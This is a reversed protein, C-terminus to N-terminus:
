REVNHLYGSAGNRLRTARWFDVTVVAYGYPQTKQHKARDVAETPRTQSVDFM